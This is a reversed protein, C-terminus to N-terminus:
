KQLTKKLYVLMAVKNVQYKQSAVHKRKNFSLFQFLYDLTQFSCVWFLSQIWFWVHLHFVNCCSLVDTYNMDSQISRLESNPTRLLSCWLNERIATYIWAVHKRINGRSFHNMILHDGVFPILFLPCSSWLLHCKYIHQKVNISAFTCNCLFTVRGSDREAIRISVVSPFKELGIRSEKILSGARLFLVEVAVWNSKSSACSSVDFQWTCFWIVPGNMDTNDAWTTLPQGSTKWIM